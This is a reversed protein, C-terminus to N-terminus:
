MCASEVRWGGPSEPTFSPRRARFGIPTTSSIGRNMRSGREVPRLTRAWSSPLPRLVRRQGSSHALDTPRQWILTPSHEDSREWLTAAHEPEHEPLQPLVEELAARMESASNFRQAPSKSAAKRVLALLASPLGPRLQDLDPMEDHLVAVFTEAVSPARFPPRGALMEYLVIGAAYVDVRQDIAGEIMQEPAMYMPTGVVEGPRTLAPNRRTAGAMAKGIGFDLLCLRPATGPQLDVILNSPKVDRHVVQARHVSELARLLECGLECAVRVRVRGRRLLDSLPEGPVKEMVLYPTGDERKALAYIRPVRRDRVSACMRAERILRESLEHSGPGIAHCMKVAVERKLVSHYALYVMGTGGEGLLGLVTLDEGLSTGPPLSGQRAYRRHSPTRM